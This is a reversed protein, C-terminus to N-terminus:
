VSFQSYKEDLDNRNKLREQISSLRIHRDGTSIGKMFSDKEGLLVLSQRARTVGTYLLKRQLMYSHSSTIPMIIIPYESGQSKHISICYALTINDINEITYEVFNDEFQVYFTTKGTESEDADVIEVLTGIDGNYVDDDPQNKKQLVKDGERFVTYGYKLEKKFKDKPNFVSQLANNLVDIGAEKGYMPSLVQIDQLTYGKDLANQIISIVLRKIDFKQCEKFLIDKKYKNFDVENVCIDHALEIVDSGDKQRYIHELRVVPFCESGILERLVCGPGVSPLQNEDGIICIKKVNHSALLLNYFLWNDVMSFEDIILFDALIPNEKNVGFTNSELDWKLLSHITFSENDTLESLRKSARGTPACCIVTSDPYLLKFLKVMAKVVTTKGTGPGGTMILFPQEFLSYIANKQNTDYMIGLDKQMDSLYQELLDKDAPILENQPFSLLFDSIGQESEYQTIPYVADGELVLSRNFLTDQFISEFDYELGRCNKSFIQELDNKLVYSDGNRVCIDMCLSVLYAYLRRPDNEEIGLSKGINDATKFGFGDCEEVVRYPNEILKDLADKGYAKQLRTLNKLGIGHVNLFQILRELGDDMDKLGSIISEKNKDSIDITDLVNPDSKIKEICDNGLVEVIKKATKKGVGPFQVGSLFRVISDEEDPLPREYSQIVFQLGYKPHETYTGYFNYLVYEEINSFYGTATINKEKDDNVRLKVVTYFNEENHYVIHTVKANIKILDESM